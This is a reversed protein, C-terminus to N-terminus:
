ELVEEADTGGAGLNKRDLDLIRFECRESCYRAHVAGVDLRRSEEFGVGAGPVGVDIYTGAVM